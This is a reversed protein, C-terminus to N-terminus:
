DTIATLTLTSLEISPSDTLEFYYSQSGIKIEYKKGTPQLYLLAEFYGDPYTVGFDTYAYYEFIGTGSLPPNAFGTQYPRVKISVGSAPGNCTYINGYLKVLTKLDDPNDFELGITYADIPAQVTKFICLDDMSFNSPSASYIDWGVGYRFIGIEAPNRTGTETQTLGHQVGNIYLKTNGSTFDYNIQIVYETNQVFSYPAYLGSFIGVNSSDNAQLLINGGSGSDYIALTLQNTQDGEGKSSYFLSQSYTDSTNFNPTFKFLITGVQASDCNGTAVYELWGTTDNLIELKGGNIAATGQLTGTPSGISYDANQNTGFKSYFTLDTNRTNIYHM